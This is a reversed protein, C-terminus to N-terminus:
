FEDRVKEFDPNPESVEIKKLFDKSIWVEDGPLAPIYDYPKMTILNYQSDTLFLDVKHGTGLNVKSWIRTGKYTGSRLKYIDTVHTPAGYEKILNSVQELETPDVEAILCGVDCKDAIAKSM